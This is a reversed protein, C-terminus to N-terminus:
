KAEAVQGHVQNVKEPLNGKEEHYYHHHNRDSLIQYM